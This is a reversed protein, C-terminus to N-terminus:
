IDKYSLSTKGNILRNKSLKIGTEPKGWKRRRNGGDVTGDNGGQLDSDEEWTWTKNQSGSIKVLIMKHGPNSVIWPLRTPEGHAVCGFVIWSRPLQEAPLLLTEYVGGLEHSAASLLPVAKHLGLTPPWLQQSATPGTATAHESFDFHRWLAFAKELTVQGLELGIPLKQRVVTPERTGCCVTRSDRATVARGCGSTNVQKTATM